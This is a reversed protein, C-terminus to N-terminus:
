AGTYYGCRKKESIRSSRFTRVGTKNMFNNTDIMIGAYLSSAELNPIKIDDVIYQLVRRFWRARRLRMRNLTLCCRM